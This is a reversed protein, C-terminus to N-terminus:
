LAVPKGGNDHMGPFGFEGTVNEIKIDWLGLM